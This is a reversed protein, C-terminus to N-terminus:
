EKIAKSFCLLFNGHLRKFLSFYLSYITDCYLDENIVMAYVVVYKRPGYLIATMLQIIFETKVSTATYKGHSFYHTYAVNIVIYMM